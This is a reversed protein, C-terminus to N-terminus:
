QDGYEKFALLQANEHKLADTIRAERAKEDLLAASAASAESAKERESKLQNTSRPTHYPTAHM